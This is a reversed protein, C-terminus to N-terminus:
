TAPGKPVGGEDLRDPGHGRIDRRQINAVLAAVVTV